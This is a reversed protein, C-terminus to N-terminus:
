WASTDTPSLGTCVVKTRPEAMWDAVANKWVAYHDTQQHSAVGDEAHYAEYLLFHTPDESSQLVDFRANGAELRTNEANILTAERFDDVHEPRVRVTVVIVYM